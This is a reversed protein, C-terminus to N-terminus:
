SETFEIAPSPQTSIAPTGVLTLNNTESTFSNRFCFPADMTGNHVTMKVVITSNAGFSAQSGCCDGFVNFEADNWGGAAGVANLGVMMAMNTGDTVMVRDNSASVEASLTVNGLNSVPQGAPLSATGTTQRCSINSPMWGSPCTCGSPPCTTNYNVLWYQIFVQHVKDNNEYIFQEFGTCFSGLPSGECKKTFFNNTNLQLSYADKVTAGSNPTPGSETIGPSVSVFSGEAASIFGGPHAVFDNAGGGGVVFPAANGRAPAMPYPPPAGCAVPKWEVRPFSSTYCGAKPQPLLSLSKRWAERTEAIEPKTAAAASSATSAQSKPTEPPASVAISSPLGILVSTGVIIGLFTTARRRPSSPTKM